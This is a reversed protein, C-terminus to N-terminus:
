QVPYGKQSHLSSLCISHALCRLYIMEYALFFLLTVLAWRSQPKVFSCSWSGGEPWFYFLDHFGGLISNFVKFLFQHNKVETLRGVHGLVLLDESLGLEARAEARKKIDFGVVSTDVGNKLIQFSPGEVIEAGFRDIGAEKSCALFYDAVHRVPRACVRFLIENPSIPYNQAHSHAITYAGTKSAENLYISAPFGIHGHVIPYIHQSFFSKCATKYSCYNFLKYRPIRFIRGGLGQIESDYDCSNEEHVLFDFQVLNRDINRYLNMLLTEAGGRDMAGIVQLVRVPKQTMNVLRSSKVFVDRWEFVLVMVCM